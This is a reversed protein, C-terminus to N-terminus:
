QCSHPGWSRGFQDLGGEDTDEDGDDLLDLLCLQLDDKLPHTSKSLKKRLARPVYGAAYRLANTEEYTLASCRATQAPVSIPNHLKILQKFIYHGVYQCFIPSMESHISQKLFTRWKGIYSGSTRLEHYSSWMQERRRKLSSHKDLFTSLFATTISTEFDATEDLHDQIWKEMSEAILRASTAPSSQISFSNDDLM